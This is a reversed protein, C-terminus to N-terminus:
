GSVKQWHAVEVGPESRTTVKRYLTNTVANYYHSKRHTAADPEFATPEIITAGDLELFRTSDGGVSRRGLRNSLDDLFIRQDSKKRAEANSTGFATGIISIGTGGFADLVM